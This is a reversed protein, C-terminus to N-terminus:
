PHNESFNNQTNFKILMTNGIIGTVDQRGNYTPACHLQGVPGGRIGARTTPMHSPTDMFERVIAFYVVEFLLTHFSGVEVLSHAVQSLSESSVTTWTGTSRAVVVATYIAAGTWFIKSTGEYLLIVYFGTM